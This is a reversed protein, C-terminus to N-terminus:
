KPKQRRRKPLNGWGNAIDLTPVESVDADAAAARVGMGSAADDIGWFAKAVQRPLWANDNCTADSITPDEFNISWGELTAGTTQPDWWSALAVYTAFGEQTAGSQWEFGNTNLNWGNGLWSLDDNLGNQGFERMQLIHGVEHSMLKLLRM